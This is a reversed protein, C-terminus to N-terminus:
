RFQDQLGAISGSRAIKILQTMCARRESGQLPSLTLPSVYESRRMALYFNNEALIWGVGFLGLSHLLFFSCRFHGTNKLTWGQQRLTILSLFLAIARFILQNWQFRRLHFCM